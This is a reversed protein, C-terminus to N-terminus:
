NRCKCHYATVPAPPLTKFIPSSDITLFPVPRVPDVTLYFLSFITLNFIGPYLLQVMNVLATLGSALIWYFVLMNFVPSIGHVTLRGQTNSLVVKNHNNAIDLQHHSPQGQHHSLLGKISPKRRCALFSGLDQRRRYDVISPPKAPPLLPPVALAAPSGPPEHAPYTPFVFM